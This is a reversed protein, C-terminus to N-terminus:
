TRAKFLDAVSKHRRHMLWAILIGWIFNSSATEIFHIARVEAPMVPNPILLQANMVLAFILGLALATERPRGKMMRIVPLAVLIWILGRLIQWGFIAPNGTFLTYFHEGIPRILTSGSYYQRISPSQWAVFYGFLFYLLPYILICLVMIKLLAQALPMSLRTNPDDEEADRARFKGFVAVSIVGYLIAFVAGGVLQSHILTMSIKGGVNFFFVEAMGLLFQVVYVTLALVAMLKVGHWRSRLIPQALVASNISVVALMAVLYASAEGPSVSGAHSQGSGRLLSQVTSTVLIWIVTMLVTLIAWRALIKLFSRSKM